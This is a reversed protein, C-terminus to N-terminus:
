LTFLCVEAPSRYSNTLEAREIERSRSASVYKLITLKIYGWLLDMLPFDDKFLSKDSVTHIYLEVLYINKFLKLKKTGM